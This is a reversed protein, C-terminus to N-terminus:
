ESIHDGHHQRLPLFETNKLSHKNATRNVMQLVLSSVKAQLTIFKDFGHM